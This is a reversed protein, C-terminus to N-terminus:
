RSWSRFKSETDTSKLLMRSRVDKSSAEVIRTAELVCVRDIECNISNTTFTSDLEVFLELYEKSHTWLEM